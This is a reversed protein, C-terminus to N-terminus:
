FPMEEATVPAAYGAIPGPNALPQVPNPNPPVSAPAPPAVKEDHRKFDAPIVVKAAGSPAAAASSVKSYGKDNQVVTIYASKGVLAQLDMDRIQENTATPYWGKVFKFLNSPFDETGWSFSERTNVYSPKMDDTLHETLFVIYAKTVTKRDDLKNPDKKPDKVKGFFFNDEEKVYVDACVAMFSGPPHAVFEQASAGTPPKLPTSM